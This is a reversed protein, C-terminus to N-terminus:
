YMKEIKWRENGALVCRVGKRMIADQVETRKGAPTLRVVEEIIHLEKDYFRNKTSEAKM